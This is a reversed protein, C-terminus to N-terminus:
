EKTVMPGKLDFQEIEFGLEDFAKAKAAILSTAQVTIRGEGELRVIYTKEEIDNEATPLPSLKVQVQEPADTIVKNHVRPDEDHHIKKLRVNNEDGGLFGRPMDEVRKTDHNQELARRFYEDLSLECDGRVLWLRGGKAKANLQRTGDTAERRGHVNERNYFSRLRDSMSKVGKEEDIPNFIPTGDKWKAQDKTLLWFEKALQDVPVEHEERGDRIILKEEYENRDKLANVYAQCNRISEQSINKM